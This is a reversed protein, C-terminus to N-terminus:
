IDDKTLAEKDVSSVPLDIDAVDKTLNNLTDQMSNNISLQSTTPENEKSAELMTINRQALKNFFPIKSLTKNNSIKKAIIQMLTNKRKKTVVNTNDAVIDETTEDVQVNSSNITKTKVDLLNDVIDQSFYIGLLENLMEKECELFPKKSCCYWQAERTKEYVSYDHDPQGFDRQHQKQYIGIGALQCLMEKEKGTMGGDYTAISYCKESLLKYLPSNEDTGLNNAGNKIQDLRIEMMKFYKSRLDNLETHNKAYEYGQVVNRSDAAGNGYSKVKSGILGVDATLEMMEYANPDSNPFDEIYKLM